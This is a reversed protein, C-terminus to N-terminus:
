ALKRRLTLGLAGMGLAILALASPEPITSVSLGKDKSIDMEGGSAITQDWRFAWAVNGPGASTVGNLTGNSVDSLTSGALGAETGNATPSLIVEAIGTGGPGGTNQFAGTYAGPGGSISVSNQSNQLLNFNSYQYFSLNVSSGSFNDIWIYEMM